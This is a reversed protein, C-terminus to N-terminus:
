ARGGWSAVGGALPREVGDDGRHEGFVSPGHHAEADHAAVHLRLAVHLDEDVQEVEVHAQLFGAVGRAEVVDAGGLGGPAGAM